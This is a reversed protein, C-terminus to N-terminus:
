CAALILYFAVSPPIHERQTTADWQIEESLPAKTEMVVKEDGGRGRSFNM